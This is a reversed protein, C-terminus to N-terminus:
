REIARGPATVDADAFFLERAKARSTEPHVQPIKKGPKVLDFLGIRRGCSSTLLVDPITGPAARRGGREPGPSAPQAIDFCITSGYLAAGLDVVTSPASFFQVSGGRSQKEMEIQGLGQAVHTPQSPASTGGARQILWGDTDTTFRAQVLTTDIGSRSHGQQAALHDIDKFLVAILIASCVSRTHQLLM